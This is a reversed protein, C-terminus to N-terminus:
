SAVLISKLKAKVAEPADFLERVLREVEEGSIPAVDLNAKQAEEIFEPDKFTAMFAQRMALVRDNPTDPHM